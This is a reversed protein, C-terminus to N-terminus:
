PVAGDVSTVRVPLGNWIRGDLERGAAKKAMRVLDNRQLRDHEADHRDPAWNGWQKSHFPVGAASCQDRVGRFWDPHSPRAKGGSEGGAIVWQIHPQLWQRLDLPGLLPECSLFRMAAPVAILAPLRKEAWAQNEVTAGLWVNAPWRDGWPALNAAHQPRKTLLLWDLMPTAEILEALQARPHDLDRRNEFVDAMSACFVRQRVGNQEAARNWHLPEKWHSEAFLWRPARAGWVQKGVRKAWAEAYCHTCAPSVKTCGWWPNFTHDTWEIRSDKGM